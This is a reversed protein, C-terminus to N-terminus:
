RNASTLEPFAEHRFPMGPALREHLGEVMPAVGNGPRVVYVADRGFFRM